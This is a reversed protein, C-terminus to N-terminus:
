AAGRKPQGLARWADLDANTGPDRGDLIDCTREPGYQFILRDVFAEWEDPRTSAYQGLADRKPTPVDRPKREVAPAPQADRALIPDFAALRRRAAEIDIDNM